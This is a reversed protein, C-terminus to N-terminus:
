ILLFMTHSVQPLNRSIWTDLLLELRLRHYRGTTKLAIFLDTQSLHEVPGPLISSRPPSSVARRERTLTRIYASFVMGSAPPEKPHGGTLLLLVGTLMLITVGAAARVGVSSVTVGGTPKWM